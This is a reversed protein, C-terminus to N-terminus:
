PILVTAGTTRRAVLDAQAQPAESLPRTTIVDARIEGAAIRGFLDAARMQLDARDAIYDFLTPRCAYLSGRALDPLGFGEIPGSSQGFNVFVGFRGLCALSGRWTDRGVSDYVAACGKPGAIEQVRPVFDGATYDIVEAYGHRRALAVKEPGGATGIATAGLLALWQGLLLGVGGAAAHVLVTDGAKVPYSSTVLYQATLGKLMVSAAVSDSVGEPLLVLRDAPVVRRTRYAGTRMVYAVRAGVPLDVGQGVAEIVGAADGGPILTKEPWPYLGSRFYTDIFNVGIATHRLLVEGPGPVPTEVETWQLVEPGGPRTAVFAMDM